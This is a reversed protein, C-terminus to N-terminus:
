IKNIKDAMVVPNQKAIKERDATKYDFSCQHSDMYRHM